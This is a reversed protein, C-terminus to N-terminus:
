RWKASSSLWDQFPLTVFGLEFLWHWYLEWEFEPRRAGSSHETLKLPCCWKADGGKQSAQDKKDIERGYSITFLSICRLRNGM